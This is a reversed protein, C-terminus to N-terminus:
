APRMQGAMFWSRPDNADMAMTGSLQVFYEAVGDRDRADLIQGPLWAKITDRWVEVNQGSFFRQNTM